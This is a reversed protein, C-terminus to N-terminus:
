IVSLVDQILVASYNSYFVDELTLYLRKISVLRRRWSQTLLFKLFDKLSVLSYGATSDVPSDLVGTCTLCKCTFFFKRQLNPVIRKQQLPPNFVEHNMKTM